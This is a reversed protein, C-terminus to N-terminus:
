NLFGKSKLEQINKSLNKIGATISRCSITAGSIVQIDNGLGMEEGNAKDDFQKLWRKSTIEGGYDERYLLVKSTMISLDPKFLVMYDFTDFKSKAKDIYMYGKLEANDWLQFFKNENLKFSLKKEEANSLSLAKKNITTEPFYALLTKDIKKVAPKPLDFSTDSVIWNLSLLVVLLVARM